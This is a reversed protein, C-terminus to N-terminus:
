GLARQRAKAATLAAKVTQIAAEVQKISGSKPNDIVGKAASGGGSSSKSDRAQKEKTKLEQKHTQRYKKADRAAKSKDAATPKQNKRDRNLAAKKRALVTRLETLKNTLTTVAAAAQARQRALQQASAPPIVGRPRVPGTRGGAPQGAGRQRPHLHRTRLYYAHAKVPDYTSSPALHALSPKDEPLKAMAMGMAM